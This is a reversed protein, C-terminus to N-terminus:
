LDMHQRGSAGGEQALYVSENYEFTGIHGAKVRSDCWLKRGLKHARWCFSYDEGMHPLPQFPSGTFAEGIDKILQVKTLVLGFGGGAIEFLQDKPYDKYMEVGHTIQQTNSDMDWTIKKCIVPETPYSRKFYIGCVYDLNNDEADVLLRLLADPEFTMDSDIWLVYDCENEIALLSLRARADYCTSNDQTAYIVTLGPRELGVMCNYFRTKVTGMTPTAILVKM